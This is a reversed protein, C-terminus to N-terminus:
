IALVSLSLSSQDYLMTLLLRASCRLQGARGADLGHEFRKYECKKGKGSSNPRPAKVSGTSAAGDLGNSKAKRM